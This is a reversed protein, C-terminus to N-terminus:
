GFSWFNKSERMILSVDFATGKHNKKASDNPDNVTIKGDDTLGTLVIFHGGKTFTGPGMSAIVPKGESLAALMNSQSHGLGRCSIGWNSAVAGFIDWSSGAGNVYYRNGTWAVVDSPLIQQGKMYSLVMALCTPACGKNRITGNGYAVSSWPGSYQLYLPMDQYSGSYPDDPLPTDTSDDNRVTARDMRFFMGYAQCSAIYKKKQTEKTFYKEAIEDDSLYANQVEYKKDAIQTIEIKCIDNLFQLAKDADIEGTKEDLGGNYDLYAILSAYDIHNVIRKVTIDCKKKTVTKGTEPDTEQVEYTNERILRDREDKIKTEITSVFQEDIKKVQNYITTQMADYTSKSTIAGNPRFAGVLNLLNSVSLLLTLMVAIALCGIVTVIKKM